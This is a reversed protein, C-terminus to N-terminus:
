RRPFRGLQSGLHRPADEADINIGLMRPFAVGSSVASFRMTMPDLIGDQYDGPKTPSGHQGTVTDQRSVSM